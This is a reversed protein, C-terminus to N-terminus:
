RKFELSSAEDSWVLETLAVSVEAASADPSLAGSTGSAGVFESVNTAVMTLTFPAAGTAISKGHEHASSTLVILQEPLTYGATPVGPCAHVVESYTAHYPPPTTPHHPPPNCTIASQKVSWVMGEPADEDGNVGGKKKVEAGGKNMYAVALKRSSTYPNDFATARAAVESPSPVGPVAAKKNVGIGFAKCKVADTSGLGYFRTTACSNKYVPLQVSSYQGGAPDRHPRRRHNATTPPPHNAALPQRAAPPPGM